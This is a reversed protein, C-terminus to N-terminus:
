LLPIKYFLRNLLVGQLIPHLHLVEGYGNASLNRITNDVGCLTLGPVDAPKGAQEIMEEASAVEDVAAVEQIRCLCVSYYSTPAYFIKIEGRM